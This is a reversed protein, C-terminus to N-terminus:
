AEASLAGAADSGSPTADTALNNMAWIAAQTRNRVNIKRLITKVHVKVTAEAIEFRRAILKNSEGRAICGLIDVERRSLPHEIPRPEARPIPQAFDDARQAPAPDFGAPGFLQTISSSPLVAGGEMVVELATVLTHGSISRLLCTEAGSRLAAVMDGDSYESALLVVRADRCARIQELNSRIEDDVRECCVIWISAKDEVRTFLSPDLTAATVAAQFRTGLLIHALGERFLPSRDIIITVVDPNM